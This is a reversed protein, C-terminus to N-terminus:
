SGPRTAVAEFAALARVLDQPGCRAEVMEGTSRWHLRVDESTENKHWDATTGTLETDGIRVDIPWGPNDWTEITTGLDHTWDDDCRATFWPMLFALPSTEPDM